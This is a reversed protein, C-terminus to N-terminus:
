SVVLCRAERAGGSAQSINKACISERVESKESSVVAQSGRDATHQIRCVGPIYKVIQFVIHEGLKHWCTSDAGPPGIFM